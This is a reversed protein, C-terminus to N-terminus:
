ENIRFFHAEPNEEEAKLYNMRIQYIEKEYELFVEFIRPDFASKAMKRMILLSREHTYATKYVRENTLADYVDAITLIRAPLPIQEGQLGRPYGSGDWKEHHCYAIDLGMKMFDMDVFQKRISSLTNYGIITHLKVKEFEEPTLKGKKRLINDSIGVKGIDHLPATRFINEIFKDNIQEKFDPHYRLKEALFKCYSRIRELHYGTEMDRYEALKALGFIIADQAQTMKHFYEVLQNQAKKLETIDKFQWAYAFTQGNEDRISIVNIIADWLDGDKKRNTIEGSWQGKEKTLHFIQDFILSKETKGLLAEPTKNFLEKLSFGTLKVLADNSSVIKGESDTIVIADTLTQFIDKFIRLERLREDLINRLKRVYEDTQVKEEHKHLVSEVKELFENIQFPKVIYDYGGKQMFQVATHIDPNGTIFIFPINFNNEIVYNFLEKGTKRPLYIDSVILDYSKEQLFRIAQDVDHVPDAHINIQRLATALLNALDVEDDVILARITQNKQMM